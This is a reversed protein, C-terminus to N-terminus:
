NVGNNNTEELTIQPLNSYLWDILQSGIKEPFQKKGKLVCEWIVGIRWGKDLLREFNRKEREVNGNLKSLWFEKRTEPTSTLHCGHRHWFCGHIFLVANYKSLVIDPKGPLEKKHLRYRFGKAWLWKRVLIEPKTNKGRIKSMNFSRQKPSHVDM